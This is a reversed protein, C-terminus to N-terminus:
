YNKNTGTFPFGSGSSYLGSARLGVRDISWCCGSGTYFDKYLYSTYYM